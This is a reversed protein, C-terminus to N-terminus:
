DFKYKFIEFNGFLNLDNKSQQKKPWLYKVKSHGNYYIIKVQLFQQSLLNESHKNVIDRRLHNINIELIIGKIYIFLNPAM